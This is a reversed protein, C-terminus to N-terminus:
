FNGVMFFFLFFFFCPLGTEALFSLFIVFGLTFAGTGLRFPLALAASFIDLFKDPRIAFRKPEPPKFDHPPSLTPSPSPVVNAEVSGIASPTGSLEAYLVMRRRVSGGRTPPPMRFSSSSASPLVGAM